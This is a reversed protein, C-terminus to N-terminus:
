QAKWRRFRMCKKSRDLIMGLRNELKGFMGEYISFSSIKWVGVGRALLM